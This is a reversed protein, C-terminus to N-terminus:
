RGDRAPELKPSRSLDLPPQSASRRSKLVLAGLLFFYPASSNPSLAVENFIINVGISCLLAVGILREDISPHRVCWAFIFLFFGVYLVLGPLGLQGVVLGLGSEVIDQRGLYVFQQALTGVRGLGRGLPYHGLDRVANVAGAVHLLLSGTAHRLSFIIFGVGTVAVGGVVCLFVWRRCRYYAYVCCFIMLGLMGGKSVTLGIGLAALSAVAVSRSRYGAAFLLFFFTGLNVPDAFTSVMRRIQNGGIREASYWNEPVGSAGLNTLGKKLWLDSVNLDRWMSAYAFQEVVGVAFVILGLVTITRWLTREDGTRGSIMYGLAFFLLPTTINRISALAAVGGLGFLAASFLLLGATVVLLGNVVWPERRLWTAPRCAWVAVLWLGPLVFNTSILLRVAFSSLSPSVLGLVVNQAASLFVIFAVDTDNIGSFVVIRWAVFIAWIAGLLTVLVLPQDAIMGLGVTVAYTAVYWGFLLARRSLTTM